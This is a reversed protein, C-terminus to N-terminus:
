VLGDLDRRLRTGSAFAQAVAAVLLGAVVWAPTFSFAVVVDGGQADLVMGRGVAMTVASLLPVAVLLLAIIRLRTVNRQTFPEGRGLDTLFRSLLVAGWVLSGVVLVGTLMLLVFPTTGVDQVLVDAEATGVVRGVGAAGADVDLPVGTLTLQRRLAWDVGIFIWYAAAAGVVFWLLLTTAIRDGRDFRLIRERGGRETTSRGTSM